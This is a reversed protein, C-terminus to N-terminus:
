LKEDDFGNPLRRVREAITSGVVSRPRGFRECRCLFYNRFWLGFSDYAQMRLIPEVYATGKLSFRSLEVLNM